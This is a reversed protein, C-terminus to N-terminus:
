LKIYPTGTRCDGFYSSLLHTVEFDAYTEFFRKRWFVGKAPIARFSM